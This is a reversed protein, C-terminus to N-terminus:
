TWRESDCPAFPATSSSGPRTAAAARAPEAMPACVHRLDTLTARPDHTVTATQAVPNAEVALVRQRSGLAREVVAKKSAYKLHAAGRDRATGPQSTTIRWPIRVREIGTEMRRMLEWLSQGVM